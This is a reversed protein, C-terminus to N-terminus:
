GHWRPELTSLRVDDVYEINKTEFENRREGYDIRSGGGTGDSVWVRTRTNMEIEMHKLHAELDPKGVASGCLPCHRSASKHM